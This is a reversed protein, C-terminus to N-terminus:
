LWRRVSCKYRRYEDNFKAELYREERAIVGFTLVILLPALFLLAGGSDAAIALAIYGLTMALYMPNRTFGYVGETVIRATPRWPKAPTEARRFRGLAGAILALAIVALFVSLGYQLAEPVDTHLRPFMLDLTVGAGFAIAFLLPPPAIVGPNDDSDSM